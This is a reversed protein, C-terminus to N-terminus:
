TNSIFVGSDRYDERLYVQRNDKDLIFYDYRPIVEFVVSKNTDCVWLTNEEDLIIGSPELGGLQGTINFEALTDLYSAQPKQTRTSIVVLYYSSGDKKVALLKGRDYQMDMIVSSPDYSYLEYDEMTESDQKRLIGDSYCWMIEHSKGWVDVHKDELDLVGSPTANWNTGDVSNTYSGQSRIELRTPLVEYYFEKLKDIEEIWIQSVGSPSCGSPAAICRIGSADVDTVDVNSPLKTRYIVDVEDVRATTIFKSRMLDNMSTEIRSLELAAPSILQQGISVPNERLHMWPPMMNALQQTVSSRYDGSAALNGGPNVYTRSIQKPYSM